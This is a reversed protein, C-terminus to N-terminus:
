ERAHVSECERKCECLCARERGIENDKARVSKKVRKIEQERECGYVFM